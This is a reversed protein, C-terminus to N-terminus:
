CKNDTLKACVSLTTSVKATTATALWGIVGFVQSDMCITHRASSAKALGKITYAM